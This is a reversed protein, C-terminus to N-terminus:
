QEEVEISIKGLDTQIDLSLIRWKKTAYSSLLSAIVPHQVNVVDWMEKAIANYWTSWGAAWHKRNM